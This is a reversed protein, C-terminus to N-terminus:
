NESLNRNMWFLLYQLAILLKLQFRYKNYVGYCRGEGLVEIQFTKSSEGAANRAVCKYVGADVTRAKLVDLRRKDQSLHINKDSDVIPQANLQWTIKLFRGM